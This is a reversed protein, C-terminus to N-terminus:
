PAVGEQREDDDAHQENTSKLRLREEKRSKQAYLFTGVLGGLNILITAFGYGSSGTAMPYIGGCGLVLALIFGLFLGMASRKKDSEIVTKELYQRHAAQKEAMALIRDAGNPIIANYQDLITPHPIPGV